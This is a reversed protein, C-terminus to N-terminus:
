LSYNRTATTGFVVLVVNSTLEGFSIDEFLLCQVLVMTVRNLNKCFLAKVLTM